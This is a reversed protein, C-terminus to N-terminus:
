VSLYVTCRRSQPNSDGDTAQHTPLQNYARSHMKGYMHKVAFNYDNVTFYLSSHPNGCTCQISHGPTIICMAKGALLPDLSPLTVFCPLRAWSLVWVSRPPWLHPLATTLHHPWVPSPPPQLQPLQGRPSWPRTPTILSPGEKWTTASLTARRWPDQSPFALRTLRCGPRRM